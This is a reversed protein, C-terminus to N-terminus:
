NKERLTTSISLTDNQDSSNAISKKKTEPPIYEHAAKESDESFVQHLISENKTKSVEQKKPEPSKDSDKAPTVIAAYVFFAIVALLLWGLLKTFFGKKKLAKKAEAPSRGQLIDQYDDEFLAVYENGCKQCQYSNEWRFVRKDYSDSNFMESLAQEPKPFKKPMMKFAKAQRSGCKPCKLSQGREIYTAGTIQLKM